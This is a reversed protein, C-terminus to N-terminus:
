ETVLNARSPSLWVRAASRAPEPTAQATTFGPPVRVSMRASAIGPSSGVVRGEGSSMTSGKTRSAAPRPAWCLPARQFARLKRARQGWGSGGHVARGDADEVRADAAQRHGALQGTAQR